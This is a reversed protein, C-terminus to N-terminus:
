DSPALPKLEILRHQACDPQEPSALIAKFEDGVAWDEQVPRTVSIGDPHFLFTGEGETVETLEAIGRQQTWDCDETSPSTQQPESQETEGHSEEAPPPEQVSGCGGLTAILLAMTLHRAMRM